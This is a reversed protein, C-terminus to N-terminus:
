VELEIAGYVPLRPLSVEVAEKQIAMELSQAQPETFSWLKAARFHGAVRATVPSNGANGAYNIVHVLARKRNPPWTFYSGLAFGNFFRVLDYRHSVLIQADQAFEYPDDPDKYAMAIKGKGFRLIAYRAHSDETSPTGPAKGWKPGTILLGGSEVFDLITQRLGTSPSDSDPYIVARLGRLNERRLGGKVLVAYSVNTRATLNLVEHSFFENGGSFDSVVGLTANVPRTGWERHQEFFAVAGMLRKWQDLFEPNGAALGEAMGKDLSIVWRGGHAAGDAVAVLHQPLRKIETSKPPDATLWVQCEPKQARALRALWGNSDVWPAGTPGSSADGHGRAMRIGPWEGKAIEVRAPPSKEDCITFGDQRAREIINQFGEISSFLLCGFPTGKVLELAGPDRWGAPWRVPWDGHVRENYYFYGM